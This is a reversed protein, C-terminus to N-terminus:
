RRWWHFGSLFSLPDSPSGFSLLVSVYLRPTPTLWSLLTFWANTTFSNTSFPQNSVAMLSCLRASLVPKWSRLITSSSPCFMFAALFPLRLFLRTVKIEQFKSQVSHLTKIVPFSVILDPTLYDKFIYEAKTESKDESKAFPNKGQVEKDSSMTTLPQISFSFLLLPSNKEYMSIKFWSFLSATFLLLSLCDPGASVSRISAPGFAPLVLLCLLVFVAGFCLFRSSQFPYLVHCTCHSYPRLFWLPFECSDFKTTKSSEGFQHSELEKMGSVIMGRSDSHNTNTRM